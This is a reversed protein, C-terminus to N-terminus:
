LIKKIITFTDIISFFLERPRRGRMELVRRSKEKGTTEHRNPSTYVKKQEYKNCELSRRWNAVIEEGLIPGFQEVNQLGPPPPAVPVSFDDTLCIYPRKLSAVKEHTAVLPHSNYYQFTESVKLKLCPVALRGRNSLHHAKHIKLNTTTQRSTIVTTQVNSPRWYVLIYM